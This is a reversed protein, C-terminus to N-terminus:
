ERLGAAELAEARDRYGGTLRSLKGERFTWISFERMEAEVGSGRGRGSIRVSTFVQDGADIAEEPEFQFNEWVEDVQEVFRRFGDLGHYVAPNIVRRSVDLVFDPHVVEPIASFDRNAWFGFCRRVIEVNEESM